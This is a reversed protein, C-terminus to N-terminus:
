REPNIINSLSQEFVTKWGKWNLTDNVTHNHWISVHCGNHQKVTRTLKNMRELAETPSLNLYQAFTGEMYTIPYIMLPTVKNEELDFWRFPTCTGARFGPHSAYGMSYDEQMDMILLHRYTIPLILKLYHQRSKTIKQKSAQELEKKERIIRQLKTSTYYSPHLGVEAYSAMEAVLAKFHRNTLPLNKDYKTGTGVNIFYLLPFGYAQQLDKLYDFSDFPDKKKNSITKIQESLHKINFRLSNKLFAFVNRAIGRHKFAFAQDVDITVKYNYSATRSDLCAHTKSFTKKLDEAWENVLPRELLGQKFLVSESAEFRQHRDAVFPLYEEYRTVLYFAAAFPDFVDERIGDGKLFLPISEGRQITAKCIVITNQFLLGNPVVHLENEKLM